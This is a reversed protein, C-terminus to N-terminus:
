VKSNSLNSNSLAQPPVAVPHPVDIAQGATGIRDVIDTWRQLAVPRDYAREFLARARAGMDRCRQPDAALSRVAAILAAGDGPPVVLGIDHTRILRGVEGDPDGVFLAPRGAAMIGYIKSPVILGELNPFLTVLHIDPVSLSLVLSARPQYPQFVVHCAKHQEVRRQLTDYNQGGGVFLWTIDRDPPLTREDQGGQPTGPQSGAIAAWVTECEHARGFNGAYGIVFASELGWSRRLPNAEPPVPKIETGDAWNEVVAIRDPPVGLRHLRQAMRQGIAVNLVARRLSWTRLRALVPHLLRGNYVALAKAVEPFLDQLWNIAHARKLLCVPVVIVSLMPPDTKAVVLDGARIHRLLQIASSLYFTLYDIARGALGRRGFRTTWVRIVEVGDITEHAPLDAGPHDYRQRSAIVLVSRGTGALGFALDSLMQSTASHDPYVYRNLFVIRM